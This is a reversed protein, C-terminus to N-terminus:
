TDRPASRNTSKTEGSVLEAPYTIKRRYVKAFKTLTHPRANKENFLDIVTFGQVLLADGIMSRHCRWPVAEACMIVTNKKKAIKMLEKLGTKFESTQMYDAYGRFQPSRWGENVHLKPNVKRRGGLIELHIYEINHKELSRKLRAKGFQPFARSGPYHRVDVLVEIDYSELIKM